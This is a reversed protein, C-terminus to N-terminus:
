RLKTEKHLVKKRCFKCYKQLELKKNAKMQFNRTNKQTTYNVRDCDSCKLGILIITKKKAM